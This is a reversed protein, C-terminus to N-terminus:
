GFVRQSGLGVGFVADDLAGDLGYFVLDGFQHDDGIDAQTFVGIVSVAAKHVTMRHVVVGCQVQQGFRGQGM